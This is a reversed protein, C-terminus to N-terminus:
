EGFFLWLLIYGEEGEDEETDDEFLSWSSSPSIDPPPFSTMRETENEGRQDPWALRVRVSISSTHSHTHQGAGTDQTTLSFKQVVSPPRPPPSVM